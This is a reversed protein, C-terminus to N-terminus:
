PRASCLRHVKSINIPKIARLHRFDPPHKTAQHEKHLKILTSITSCPLSDLLKGQVYTTSDSYDRSVTMKKYACNFVAPKSGMAKQMGLKSPTLLKFLHKSRRSWTNRQVLAPTAFAFHPFFPKSRNCVLAIRVPSYWHTHATALKVSRLHLSTYRENISVSKDTASFFVVFKPALIGQPSM